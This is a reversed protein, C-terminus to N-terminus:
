AAAKEDRRRWEALLREVSPFHPRPQDKPNWLWGDIEIVIEAYYDDQM